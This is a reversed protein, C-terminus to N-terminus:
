GLEGVLHFPPVLIRRTLRLVGMIGSRNARELQKLHALAPSLSLSLSLSGALGAASAAVEHYILQGRGRVQDLDKKRTSQPFPLRAQTM